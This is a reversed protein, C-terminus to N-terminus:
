KVTIKGEKLLLYGIKYKITATTEFDVHVPEPISLRSNIRRGKPMYTIDKMTSKKFSEPNNTTERM